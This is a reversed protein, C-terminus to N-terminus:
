SIASLFLLIFVAFFIKTIRITSESETQRNAPQSGFCDPSGSAVAVGSMLSVGVGESSGVAELHGRVGDANEPDNEDEVFVVRKGEFPNKQETENDYVSDAKRLKAAVSLGVFAAGASAAIIGIIRGLQSDMSM